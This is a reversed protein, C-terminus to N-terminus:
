VHARGIEYLQYLQDKSIGLQKSQMNAIQQPMAKEYYSADYTQQVQGGKAFRQVPQQAQPLMWNQQGAGLSFLPTAGPASAQPVNMTPGPQTAAGFQQTATLPTIAPATPTPQAPGLQPMQPQVQPQPQAPAKQVNIPQALTTTPNYGYNGAYGVYPVATGGAYQTGGAPAAARANALAQDSYMQYLKDTSIGMNDAQQQAQAQPIQQKFWNASFQKAM